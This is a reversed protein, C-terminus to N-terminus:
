RAKELHKVITFLNYSITTIPLIKRLLRSFTVAIPHNHMHYLLVMSLYSKNAADKYVKKLMWKPLIPQDIRTLAVIGSAFGMIVRVIVSPM